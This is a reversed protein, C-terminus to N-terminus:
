ERIWIKIFDMEISKQYLLRFENPFVGGFGHYTIVLSGQKLTRMRDISQQVYSHYLAERLPVDDKMRREPFKQECFPNYFYVCDFDRWDIDFASGEMFSVNPLEFANKLKKAARTLFVRQEVGCFQVEAANTGSVICFKGSGSGVDLVKKCQHERILDSVKLAVELPTFHVNSFRRVEPDYLLDFLSDEVEVQNRILRKISRIIVASEQRTLIQEEALQIKPSRPAKM